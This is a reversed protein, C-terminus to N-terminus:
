GTLSQLKNFTDMWKEKETTKSSITTMYEIKYRYVDFMSKFYEGKARVLPISLIHFFYRLILAGICYFILMYDEQWRIFLNKLIEKNILWDYVPTIQLIWLLFYTITAIQLVFKTYIASDMYAANLDIETKTDKDLVIWIRYFFFISNMGYKRLSYDESAALINGIITPSVATPKMRDDVPFGRLWYRLELYKPHRIGKKRKIEIAKKYYNRVKCKWYQVGLDYVWHCYRALFRGEFYMYIINDLMTLVIGSVLLILGLVLFSDHINNTSSFFLSYIFITAFLGPTIVRLLFTQGFASFISKM